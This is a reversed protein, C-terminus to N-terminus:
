SFLTLAVVPPLSSTLSGKVPGSEPDILDFFRPFFDQLYLAHAELQEGVPGSFKDM